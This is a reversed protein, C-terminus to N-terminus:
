NNEATGPKFEGTNSDVEFSLQRPAVEIDNLSDWFENIEGNADMWILQKLAEEKTMNSYDKMNKYNISLSGFAGGGLGGLFNLAYRSLDNAADFDTFLDDM